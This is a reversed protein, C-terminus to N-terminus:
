EVAQLVQLMLLTIIDFTFTAHNVYDPQIEDCITIKYDSIIHIQNNEEYLGMSKEIYKCMCVLHTYRPLMLIPELKVKVQKIVEIM